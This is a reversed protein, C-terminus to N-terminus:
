NGEFHEGQWSRVNLRETQRGKTTTTNPDASTAPRRNKSGQEKEVRKTENRKTEIIKKETETKTRGKGKGWEIRELESV